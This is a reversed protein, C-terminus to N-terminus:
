RLSLVYSKKAATTPRFIFCPWALPATTWMELPGTPVVDIHGNLILSRGKPKNVRHTGVVNYANDYRVHVPSFGRLGRIDVVRLQFRDVALGRRRMQSAVYNRRAAFQLFVCLNKQLVLANKQLVLRTTSEADVVKMITTFIEPELM